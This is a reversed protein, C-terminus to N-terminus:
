SERSEHLNGEAWVGTIETSGGTYGLVTVTVVCSTAYRKWIPISYNVIDQRSASASTYVAIYRDITYTSGGDPTIAISVYVGSTIPSSGTRINATGTLETLLGAGSRNLVTQASTTNIRQFASAVPTDTIRFDKDGIDRVVM